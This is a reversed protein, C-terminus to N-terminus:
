GGLNLEGSNLYRDKQTCETFADCFRCAVVQGPKKIVIGGELSARMDAEMQNDYNKTSRVTKAPNKYYKWADAKRWLDENTCDPIESEPADWYKKILALKRRVYSEAAVIPMLDLRHEHHRANPYGPERIRAGSWDTFIFQIAMDDRNIKDPNLWRYLSGQLIYKEDNTKNMFTYVSTTKLDEVRGEGIFDFKGSIIFGDIEKEARQELYVPITGEEEVEPNIRVKDIIKSPVGLNFLNNRYGSTWSNELMDHIATGIRSPIMSAVDPKYMKKDVRAALILQKLPKMLSTVSLHNPREDHDYTDHALWTAVSLPINSKNTYTSM